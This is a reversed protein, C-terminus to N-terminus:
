SAGATRRCNTPRGRQASSSVEATYGLRQAFSWTTLDNEKAQAKQAIVQDIWASEASDTDVMARIKAFETPPQQGRQQIFRCAFIARL